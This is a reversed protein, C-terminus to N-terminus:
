KRDHDLSKAGAMNRVRLHLVNDVSMEVKPGRRNDLVQTKASGNILLRRRVPVEPPVIEIQGPLAEVLDLAQPQAGLHRLLYCSDLPGARPPGDLAVGPM